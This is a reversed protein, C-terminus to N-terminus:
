EVLEKESSIYGKKVLFYDFNVIQFILIEDVIRLDFKAM